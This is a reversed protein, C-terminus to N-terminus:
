PCRWADGRRWRIEGICPQVLSDIDATLSMTRLLAFAQVQTEPFAQRVYAAAALLTRGKTQLATAGTMFPSTQALVLGPVCLLSTLILPVPSRSKPYM